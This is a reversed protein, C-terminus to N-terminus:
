ASANLSDKAILCVAFCNRGDPEGTLKHRRHSFYNPDGGTDVDETEINKPKIGSNKLEDLVYGLLNLHTGDLEDTIYRDWSQDLKKEFKDKEFRYSKKSISPGIYCYIEEPPVGLTKIVKSPLHLVAGSTGVHALAVFDQRKSYFVLPICDAANLILLNRPSNTIAADYDSTELERGTAIDIDMITDGGVALMIQPNKGPFYTMFKAFNEDADAGYRNYTNGLLKGSYGVRLKHNIDKIIVPM